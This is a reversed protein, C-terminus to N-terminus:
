KLLIMQKTETFKESELRYIYVGSAFNGADFDVEYIGASQKQNVLTAIEKGLSNYVKLSTFSSFPLSYTIVTSPNFPNPYNQGLEFKDPIENQNSSIGVTQGGTTTKLIVGYSGAVFGTSADAFSVSNFTIGYPTTSQFWNQGANTTKLIRGYDGVVYGTQENAFDISKLSYSFGSYVSFWDTGQNTSKYLFGGEGAVFGTSSNIFYVSNLNKNHLYWREWSYGANTSRYVLGETSTGAGTVFVNQTGVCCVSTLNYDDNIVLPWFNIGGDTTKYLNHFTSNGVGAFYGTAANVFDMGNFSTYMPLQLTVWSLGTNTSKLIRANSNQGALYMVNPDPISICKFQYVDGLNIQEWNAGSNGSRLLLSNDGAAIVWPAYKYGICKFVNSNTPQTNFWQADLTQSFLILLVPFINKMKMIMTFNVKM